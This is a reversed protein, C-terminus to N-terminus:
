VAVRNAMRKLNLAACLLKWEGTVKTIGRMSFQRFGLVHKVWGNPPEAIAKRRRYQEKTTALEFKDAMTALRPYPNADRKLQNKGERGMAVILDTKTTGDLQALVEESRYGADALAVEADKGTRHAPTNGAALVRFAIDEHLKRALKRSSFVGTAYGYVLVKVMMSPHYPQNRPGGNAYRAHFASLDLADITDNIYCALHGEPLWDQLALPLLHQQEPQYPLYSTTM